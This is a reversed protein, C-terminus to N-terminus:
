LIPVLGMYKFPYVVYEASGTIKDKKIIKLIDSNSGKTRVLIYGEPVELLEGFFDRIESENMLKGDESCIICGGTSLNYGISDGEIHTIEACYTIGSDSIAAMDGKKPIYGISYVLIDAKASGKKTVVDAPIIIYIVNFVVSFVLAAGIVTYIWGLVSRLINFYDTLDLCLRIKSIHRETHRM